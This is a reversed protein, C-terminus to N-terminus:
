RAGPYPAIGVDWTYTQPGKEGACTTAVLEDYRDGALIRAVQDLVWAKFDVDGDCREGRAIFNLAADRRKEIDGTYNVLAVHGRGMDFLLRELAAIRPASRSPMAECRRKFEEYPMVDELPNPPPAPPPDPKAEVFLERYGREQNEPRTNRDTM